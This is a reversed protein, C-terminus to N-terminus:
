LKPRPSVDYIDAFQNPYYQRYYDDYDEGMHKEYELIVGLLKKEACSLRFIPAKDEVEYPMDNNVVNGNVDFLINGLIRGNKGGLQILHMIDFTNPYGAANFEYNTPYKWNNVLSLIEPTLKKARGINKIGDSDIVFSQNENTYGMTKFIKMNGAFKKTLNRREHEIEHFKDHSFRIDLMSKKIISNIIGIQRQSLVTGNTTISITHVKINKEELIQLIKEIRDPVLFPEGGTLFLTGIETVRDFINELTTDSVKKNESNGRLCHACELNCMRTVEIGLYDIKISEIDM